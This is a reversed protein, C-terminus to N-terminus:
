GFGPFNGPYRALDEDYVKPMDSLEETWGPMNWSKRLRSDIATNILFACDGATQAATIPHAASLVNFANMGEAGIITELLNL